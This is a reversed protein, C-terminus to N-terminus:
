LGTGPALLPSNTEHRWHRTKNIVYGGIAVQHPNGLLHYPGATLADCFVAAGVALTLLM